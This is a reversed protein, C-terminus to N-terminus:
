VPWVIDPFVIGEKPNKDFYEKVKKFISLYYIERERFANYTNALSKGNYEIFKQYKEPHFAGVYRSSSRWWRPESLKNSFTLKFKSYSPIEQQFAESSITKLVINYDEEFGLKNRLLTVPIEAQVLDVDMIFTKEFPKYHIGEIATTEEKIVEILFARKKNSKRGLVKVPIKFEHEIYNAAKEGFSYYLSDKEFYIGDNKNYAGVNEESCSSLMFLTALAICCNILIKNKNNFCM